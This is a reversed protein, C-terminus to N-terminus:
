EEEEKLNRIIAWHMDIEVFEEHDTYKTNKTVSPSAM